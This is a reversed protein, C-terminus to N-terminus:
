SIHGLTNIEVSVLVVMGFLSMLCIEIVVGYELM